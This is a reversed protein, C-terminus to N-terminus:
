TYSFIDLYLGAFLLYGHLEKREVLKFFAVAIITGAFFIPESHQFLFGHHLFTRWSNKQQVKKFDLGHRGVPALISKLFPLLTSM